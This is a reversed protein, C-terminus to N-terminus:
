VLAGEAELDRVEDSSLALWDRLVAATHQGIQPSPASEALCSRSFTLPLKAVTLPGGPPDDITRFVRGCEADDLVEQTRRMREAPIGAGKVRAEVEGKPLQVSWRNIMADIEDHGALRGDVNAYRADRLQPAEPILAALAQWQEDNQVSIACWEDAGACRYCGQPAVETSRNGMRPPVSKNVSGALLLPGLSAVSCEFQALDLNAGLGTVKRESLAGLIAVCGHLSGIYDNWSAVITMPPDGERGTRMMLGSYAQLNLNMSTWDRRPGAHGYGSMSLYILGPNLKRLNEYGLGLRNMVGASYNEILVDATAVLRSAIETGRAAKLNLAISRKNRNVLLMDPSRDRRGTYAPGLHSHGMGEPHTASEVKVVDAGLDALLRACYPGAIIHGFDLVRIGSLPPGM